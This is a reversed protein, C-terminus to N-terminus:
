SFDRRRQVFFSKTFRPWSVVFKLQRGVGVDATRSIPCSQVEIAFIDPVFRFISLRFVVNDFVVEGANSSFSKTFKPGNVVFNV